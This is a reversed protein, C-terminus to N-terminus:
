DVCCLSVLANIDQYEAVLLLCLWNSRGVILVVLGVVTLAVQSV